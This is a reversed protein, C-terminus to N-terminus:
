QLFKIQGSDTSLHTALELAQQFSSILNIKHSMLIVYSAQKAARKVSRAVGVHFGTAILM